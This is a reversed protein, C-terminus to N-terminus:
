ESEALSLDVASKEAARAQALITWGAELLPQLGTGAVASIRFFPLELERARAELSAM